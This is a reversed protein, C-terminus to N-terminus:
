QRDNQQEHFEADLHDVAPQQPEDIFPHVALQQTPELLEAGGVVRVDGADALHALLHEGRDLGAGLPLHSQEVLRQLADGARPFVGRGRRRVGQAFRQGFAQGRPEVRMRLCKVFPDGVMGAVHFVHEHPVGLDQGFVDVLVRSAEDGADLRLRGRERRGHIAVRRGEVCRDLELGRGDAARHFAMRGDEAFRHLLVRLHEIGCHLPVRRREYVRFAAEAVFIPSAITTDAVRCSFSM